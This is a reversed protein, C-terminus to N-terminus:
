KKVYKFVFNNVKDLSMLFIYLIKNKVQIKVRLYLCSCTNKVFYCLVCACRCHDTHAEHLKARRIVYLFIDTVHGNRSKNEAVQENRSWPKSIKKFYEFYM